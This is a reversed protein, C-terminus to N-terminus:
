VPLKRLEEIINKIEEDNIQEPTIRAKSFIQRKMSVLSRVCEEFADTAIVHQKAAYRKRLDAIREALLLVGYPGVRMDAYNCVKREFSDGRETETAKSVGINTLCFMVGPALGLEEAIKETAAHDDVGYKKVFEKKVGEWYELGEPELFDPFRELDSKIINGMDHFVCAVVVADKDLPGDFSETIIKAVAGVRLQHLQLSPMIKYQDYVEQVTRM